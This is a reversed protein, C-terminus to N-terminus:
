RRPSGAEHEGGAAAALSGWAGAGTLLTLAHTGRAAPVDVEHDDVKAVGVLEVETAAVAWETAGSPRVEVRFVDTSSTKSGLGFHAAYASQSGYGSGGDITRIRAVLAGDPHVLRVTAGLLTPHGVSNLPRVTLWDLASSYQDHTNVYLLNPQNYNNAVYLDLDGDNDVDGFAM